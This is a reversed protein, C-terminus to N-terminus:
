PKLPKLKELLYTLYDSLEQEDSELTDGGIILQEFWHKNYNGNYKENRIEEDIFMKCMPTMDRADGKSPEPEIRVEYLYNHGAHQPINVKVGIRLELITSAGDKQKVGVRLGHFFAWWWSRGEKEIEFKSDAERGIECFQPTWKELISQAVHRGLYDGLMNHANTMDKVSVKLLCKYFDPMAKMYMDERYRLYNRYQTLIAVVNQNDAHSLEDGSYSAECDALWKELDPSQEDYGPFIRLKPDVDNKDKQTWTTRDPNKRENRPIYIIAVVEYGKKLVADYYRPIQRPQDIAGNLKNEIIIAKKSTKDTILLDIHNKEQEVCANGFDSLQLNLSNGNENKLTNIHDIFKPLFYNKNKNYNLLAHLTRTHYKENTVDLIEFINFRTGSTAKIASKAVDIIKMATTINSDSKATTDAANTQM